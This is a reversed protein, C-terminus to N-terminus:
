DAERNTDADQETSLESLMQAVVQELVPVDKLVTDYVMQLNVYEYDHILKDRMGAVQSWPIQPYRQRLAAPIKKTAEGIVELCRIVARVTKPDNQFDALSHDALFERVYKCERLIHQLRSRVDTM